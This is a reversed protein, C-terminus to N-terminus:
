GHLELRRSRLARTMEVGYCYDSEIFDASVLVLIIGASDLRTEIEHEWNTGAEVDYDFWGTIYRVRRLPTLHSVLQRRLNDDKPSYCIFIKIISASQTTM